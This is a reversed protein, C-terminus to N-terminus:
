ARGGEQWALARPLWALLASSHEASLDCRRVCVTADDECWAITYGDVVLPAPMEAPASPDAPGDGLEARLSEFASDAEEETVLGGDAIRDVLIDIKRVKKRLRKWQAVALAPDEVGVFANVCAIAREYLQDLTEEPTSKHVFSGRGTVISRNLSRGWPEGYKNM